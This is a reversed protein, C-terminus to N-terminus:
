AVLAENLEALVNDMNAGFLKYMKGLVGKGDFPSRELDDREIHISNAIHDRIMQLWQMQQENFKEPNGAHHQMVWTQFNRRVTDDFNTLKEDMGCVRRILAVLATLESAPQKDQYNDLQSYAQWVNHPALKPKDAKLITLLDHIMTYTLERRRQPQDYFISLAEIRDKHSALYDTFEQSLNQATTQADTAWGINIITDQNDHDIIQEKDRRISDILAILDGTFDQAAASVLQAQAQERLTDTVEASAALESAKQEINDADIANILNSIIQSLNISGACTKLKDKEAPNLQQNLRALRGALSSINDADNAGMMVGMALDKLSVTPKTILPQSATKLSRTVGVADVIV